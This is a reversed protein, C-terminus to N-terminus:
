DHEALTRSAPSTQPKGNRSGRLYAALVTVKAAVEAAKAYLAKVEDEDALKLGWVVYLHSQVEMASGRAIDLFHAFDKDSRRSYGEAVNPMASMAARCLQDQLAFRRKFTPKECLMHVEFTLSRALQWAKIDEFRKFSAM